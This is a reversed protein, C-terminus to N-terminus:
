GFAPAERVIRGPGGSVGKCLQRLRRLAPLGGAARAIANLSLTLFKQRASEWAM